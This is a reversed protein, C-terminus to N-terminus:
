SVVAVAAAVIVAAAAMGTLYLQVNGAELRALLRGLWQSGTGTSEVAGDVLVRDVTSVARAVRLVPRVVLRDQATDLYLGARLAALVRVGLFRAPDDAPAQRWSLGVALVGVAALGLAVATMGPQPTLREDPVGLWSPLWSSRLGVVGVVVAALALLQIPWRMLGGPEHAAFDSRPEGHFARLILRTLYAATVVVTALASVLVLV